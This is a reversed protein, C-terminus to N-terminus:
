IRGRGGQYQVCTHNIRIDRGIFRCVDRKANPNARLTDASVRSGYERAVQALYEDECYPTSVSRGRIEQFGEKCRPKAEAVAAMGQLIALAAASRILITCM